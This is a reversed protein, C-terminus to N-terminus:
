RDLGDSRIRERWRRLVTGSIPGEACAEIQRDASTRALDVRLHDRPFLDSVRDGWEVVVLTGPALWDRFGADELEAPEEVRYADVHVFGAHHHALVFTPSTVDAAALGLGEGLGKAFQTKGAGLPGTLCVLLGAVGTEVFSTALSRGLDLTAEPDRSPISWHPDPPTESM